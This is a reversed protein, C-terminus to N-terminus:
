GNIHVDAHGDAQREAQEEGSGRIRIREGFRMVFWTSPTLALAIFALLSNGWGLGLSSYLKQGGLPLLAGVLSRLLNVGVMASAAHVPFAKVMYAQIPQFVSMMGFGFIGLGVLPVVPHAKVEATWGYWFLGIPILVSGVATPWLWNEPKLTQQAKQRQKIVKDSAAGVTFVGLLTGIAEGLYTLGSQGASFHYRDQYVYSLTTFVLYLYGYVVASQTGLIWIIPSSLFLTTPRAFAQLIARHSTTQTGPDVRYNCDGTQRRIRKAKRELLIPGYTERLLFPSIITLLAMPIAIVWFIWRWGLTESLYGGAIPAFSPPILSGLAWIAMAMGLSESPMLDSVSGGGLALPTVGSFGSLFRFAILMSVNVSCACGAISGLFIINGCNYVKARGYHESLPSALLPGLASGIVYVSVVFSSLKLDTSNLSKMMMPVAPALMDSSLSTIMTLLSILVVQGWRLAPSWNIPNELDKDGNWSVRYSDRSATNSLSAGEHPPVAIRSPQMPIAVLSIADETSDNAM